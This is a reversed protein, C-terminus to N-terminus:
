HLPKSAIEIFRQNTYRILNIVSNKTVLCKGEKSSNKGTLLRSHYLIGLITPSWRYLRAQPFIEMVEEYSLYEPNQEVVTTTNYVYIMLNKFSSETIIVRSNKGFCRGDLLLCNYFVGIKNPNWGLLKVAAHNDVLEQCTYYNYDNM